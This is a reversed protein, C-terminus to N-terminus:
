QSNGAQINEALDREMARFYDGCHVGQLTLGFGECFRRLVFLHRRYESRDASITAATHEVEAVVREFDFPVEPRAM